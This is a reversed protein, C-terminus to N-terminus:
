RSSSPRSRRRARSTTPRSRSPIPRRSPTWSSRTPRSCRRESRRLRVTEWGALAAKADDIDHAADARAQALETRETTAVALAAQSAELDGRLQNVTGELMVITSQGAAWDDAKKVLAQAGTLDLQRLSATAAAIEGNLRDKRTQGEVVREMLPGVEASPPAPNIRKIEADLLRYIAEAKALDFLQGFTKNREGPTEDVFGAIRRQPVFIYESLIRQDVGLLELLAYTVAM